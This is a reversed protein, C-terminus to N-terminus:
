GLALINQTNHKINQTSEPIAHPLLPSFAWSCGAWPLVRPLCIVGCGQARCPCSCLDWASVGFKGSLAKDM